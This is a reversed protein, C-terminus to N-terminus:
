ALKLSLVRRLAAELEAQGVTIQLQSQLAWLPVPSTWLSGIKVLDKHTCLAATARSTTCHESLM